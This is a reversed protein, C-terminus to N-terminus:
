LGDDRGTNGRDPDIYCEWCCKANEYGHRLIRDYDAEKPSWLTTSYDRVGEADKQSMCEAILRKKTAEDAKADETIKAASNGIKIYMGKNQKIVAGVVDRSRLSTVQDMAIDLLRRLNLPTSWGTERESLKLSASANSVVIFDIDSSLGKDSKYLAELGLNDYVGGDWLYYDKNLKRLEPNAALNPFPYKATDLPLPGIGIPFGASSAAAQAIPFDPNEILGLIYDGMHKKSFRFDKGTEFTTANIDWVPTDPLDKLSGTVGWNETLAKALLIAKNTKLSEILNWIAGLEINKTLVTQKIDPLEKELFDKDSPWKNGNHSFLLAMGLSAGSVSSIHTVSALLGKEALYKLLGLHFITARIGGGSLALGLKM